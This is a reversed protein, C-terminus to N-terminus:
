FVLTLSNRKLAPTWVPTKIKADRQSFRRLSLPLMHVKLRELQAREGILCGRVPLCTFSCAFPQGAKTFISESPKKKKKIVLREAYPTHLPYLMKVNYIAVELKPFISTNPTPRLERSPDFTVAEGLMTGAM